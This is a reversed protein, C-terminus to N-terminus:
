GIFHCVGVGTKSCDSCDQLPIIFTKGPSSSIWLHQWRKYWFEFCMRQAKRRYIRHLKLSQFLHDKWELQISGCNTQVILLFWFLTRAKGRQITHVLVQLMYWHPPFLLNLLWVSVQNTHSTLPSFHHHHHLLLCPACLIILHRTPLSLQQIALSLSAASIRVTQIYKM